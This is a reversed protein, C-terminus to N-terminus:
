SRTPRRADPEAAWELLITKVLWIIIVLTLVVLVPEILGIVTFRLMNVQGKAKGKGKGTSLSAEVM